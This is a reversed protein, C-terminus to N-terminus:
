TSAQALVRPNSSLNSGKVLTGCESSRQRGGNGHLLCLNGSTIKRHSDDVQGAEDADRNTIVRGAAIRLM